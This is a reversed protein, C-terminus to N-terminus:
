SSSAILDDPKSLGLRQYYLEPIDAPNKYVYIKCPSIGVDSPPEIIFVPIGTKLVSSLEMAPEHCCYVPLNNRGYTLPGRDRVIADSRPEEYHGQRILRAGSPCPDPMFTVKEADETVNFPLLHCRTFHMINQVKERFPIKENPDMAEPKMVINLVRLLEKDGHDNYLISLLASVRSMMGDHLELAQKRLRHVRESAQKDAGSDILSQIKEIDEIWQKGVGRTEIRREPAIEYNEITSLAADSAPQGALESISGLISKEWGTYSYFMTVLEHQFRSVLSKAEVRNGENLRWTILDVTLKGALALEEDSFVRSFVPRSFGIDGNSTHKDCVSKM